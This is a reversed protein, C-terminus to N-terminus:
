ELVKNEKSEKVIKLAYEIGWNAGEYYQFLDEMNRTKYKKSFSICDNKKSELEYIINELNEM